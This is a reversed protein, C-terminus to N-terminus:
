ILGEKKNQNSEGSSKDSMPIKAESDVLEIFVNQEEGTVKMVIINTDYQDKHSYIASYYGYNIEKM